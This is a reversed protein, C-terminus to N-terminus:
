WWRPRWNPDNRPKLTVLARDGNYMVAPSNDRCYVISCHCNDCVTRMGIENGGVFARWQNEPFTPEGIDAITTGSSPKVAVVAPKDVSATPKSVQYGEIHEGNAVAAEILAVHAASLRGRVNESGKPLHGNKVLWEKKKM